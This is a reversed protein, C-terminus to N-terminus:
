NLDPAPKKSPVFLGFLVGAIGGVITGPVQAILGGLVAGGAAVAIARDGREWIEEKQVIRQSSHTSEVKESPSFVEGVDVEVDEEIELFELEDENIDPPLRFSAVTVQKVEGHEVRDALVRLALAEVAAIAESTTTGYALVGPLEVVEAIIRGDEERDLEISFRNISPNRSVFKQFPSSLHALQNSVRKSEVRLAELKEVLRKEIEELRAVADAPTPETM